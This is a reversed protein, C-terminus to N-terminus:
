KSNERRLVIKLDASSRPPHYTPRDGTVTKFKRAPRMGAEMFATGYAELLPSVPVPAPVNQALAEDLLASAAAIAHPSSILSRAGAIIKGDRRSRLEDIM